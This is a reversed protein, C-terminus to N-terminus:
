KFVYQDIAQTIAAIKGDNLGDPHPDTFQGIDNDFYLGTASAFEESLAAKVLIDAGQQLNGGALGYAQQVMKSGLFSKPNVAIIAPGQNNLRKGLQRSWMTLALKSKAYASNDDLQSPKILEEPTVPAQAASSLNVIRGDSPILPLLLQSLLYPALTNVAFRVDLGDPSLTNAVKFVGANNILVDIHQHNQKIALALARVQNLESLDAQYSEIDNSNTQEILQQKANAIKNASRGHILVKHGQQLLTKATALGIGDTSGTILITKKNSTSSQM